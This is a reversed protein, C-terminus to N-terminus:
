LYSRVSNFESNVRYLYQLKVSITDVFSCKKKQVPDILDISPDVSRDTRSAAAQDLRAPSHSPGAFALSTPGARNAQEGKKKM